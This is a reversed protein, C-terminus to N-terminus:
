RSPRRTRLLDYNRSRPLHVISESVTCTRKCSAYMNIFGFKDSLSRTSSAMVKSSSTTSKWMNSFNEHREQHDKSCEVFAAFFPDKKFGESATSKRPSFEDRFRQIKKASNSPNRAPPPLPLLQSLSSSNKRSIQQKPIGPIHEWSFPVGKKSFQFASFPSDQGHLSPSPSSSLNFIPTSFKTARQGYRPTRTNPSAAM